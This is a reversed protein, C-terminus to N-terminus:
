STSRGGSSDRLAKTSLNAIAMNPNDQSGIPDASRCTNDFDINDHDTTTITKTITITMMITITM